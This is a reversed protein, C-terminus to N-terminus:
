RKLNNLLEGSISLYNVVALLSDFNANIQSQIAQVLDQEVTLLDNLSRKGLLYEDQYINKARQANKNQMLSEHKLRRANEFERLAIDSSQIIDLKVQHLGQRAISVRASAQKVQATLTGGQYIPYNFNVNVQKDWDSSDYEDEQSIGLTMNLTPMKAREATKLDNKAVDLNAQAALVESLGSINIPPLYSVNFKEYPFPEYKKAAVGSLVSIRTDFADLSAQYQVLLTKMSSIRSKIQLVDSQTTVGANSRLLATNYLKELSKINEDIATILQEHRKIELYYLVVQQAVTKANVTQQHQSAELNKTAADIQYGTQGFDYLLQNVTVGYSNNTDEGNWGVGSNLSVKPLWGGKVQDIVAEAIETQISGQVVLPSEVLAFDVLEQLSITDVEPVYQSNNAYASAYYSIPALSIFFGLYTIVSKISM